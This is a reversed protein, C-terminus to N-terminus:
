FHKEIVEAIDRHGADHDSILRILSQGDVGPVSVNSDKEPLGAWRLVRPPPASCVLSGGPRERYYVPGRGNLFTFCGVGDLEALACLVGLADYQVMSSIDPRWALARTTEPYYGSRLASLWRDKVVPNM